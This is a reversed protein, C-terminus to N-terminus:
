RSPTARALAPALAQHPPIGPSAPQALPAALPAQLSADTAAPATLAALAGTVLRLATGTDFDDRQSVVIPGVRRLASEVPSLASVVIVPLDGHREHARIRELTARGDLEPMMLDLLVLDIPEGELTALAEVGSPAYLCHQEPIRTALFRRFLRAIDPDDDVILVRQVPREVRDLAAFLAAQDVPKLLLDNAGLAQATEISGPLPCVILPTAGADALPEHSVIAVAELEDAVRACGDAASALVIQYRELTHKLLTALHPASDAVVVVPDSTRLPVYPRAPRAPRASPTHMAPAELPLAFWFTTGQGHASEVGIEGGHLEVFEKSIPLGLGAGHSWGSPAAPTAHFVTFVHPLEAPPIGRGTDCVRVVVREGRQEAEVTIAGRETFRTANVLLNLLVQRIRLRDVILPPLDAPIALRLALGKAAVYDRVTDAAESVLTILATEERALVIRGVELRALNLIDDAVDLLHRASRKIALVDSRYPGPLPVDGYSEPATLIVDSFGAILNLPTRLEHSLNTVFETKFREAEDASQRAAVLAANSRELRYYAHDLHQVMKALLARQVRAQDLERQAQASSALAWIATRLPARAALWGLAGAAAGGWLAIGAIADITELGPQRGLWALLLGTALTAGLGAWLGLLMTVALTVLPFLLAVQPQQYAAAAQAIAALAGAAWVLLAGIPAKHLARLALWSTGVVTLVIGWAVIARADM